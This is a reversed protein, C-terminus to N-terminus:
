IETLIINVDLCVGLDGSHSGENEVRYQEINRVKCQVKIYGNWGHGRIHLTIDTTIANALLM